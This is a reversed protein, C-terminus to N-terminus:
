RDDPNAIEFDIWQAAQPAEARGNEQARTDTVIVQLVYRGPKAQPSLKLYGGAGLRKLDKQQGVEYPMVKGLFVLRGERLLRAQVTLKPPQKAGEPQANFIAYRYILTMGPQFRRLAPGVRPEVDSAGNEQNMEKESSSVLSGSLLIGSLALRNDLLNPVMVSQSTYGIHDSNTDRVVVRVHHLGPRRVQINFILTKGKQMLHPLRDGRERLTITARFGGDVFGRLGGSAAVAFVRAVAKFRGDTEPVFSLGRPDLHLLITIFSSAADNMFISALRLDIDGSCFPRTRAGFVQEEPVSWAVPLMEDTSAALDHASAVRTAQEAASGSQGAIYSQRARVILAPQNVRVRIFRREGPQLAKRSYYGLSYQRRLEEAILAFKHGVDELETARYMRAGTKQALDRLYADSEALMHEAVDSLRAPGRYNLTSYQITYILADSEEADRVTSEYTARQSGSDFGDTFLVIAKRGRIRKFQQNLVYDVADFLGTGGRSEIQRVAKQLEKRDSTAESWVHVATDFTIIIVRDNPRLQNIFAIAAEQVDKIRSQMSGSVDLLLAVTFPQEVPAFHVIEQEVGDESLHFDTQNLNPIYKGDRDLVSVPVMVYNTDVRLVDDEGVEEPRAPQSPSASGPSLPPREQAGAREPLLVSYLALLILTAIVLSRKVTDGALSLFISHSGYRTAAVGM